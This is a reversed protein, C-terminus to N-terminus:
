EKPRILLDGEGIKPGDISYRKRKDDPHSCRGIKGTRYLTTLASYISHQTTSARLIRVQDFVESSLLPTPTARLVVLIAGSLPGTSKTPASSPAELEGPIETDESKESGCERRILGEAVLIHIIFHIEGCEGYWGADDVDDDVWVLNERLPTEFCQVQSRELGLFAAIAAVSTGIVSSAFLVRAANRSESEFIVREIMDDVCADIVALRLDLAVADAYEDVQDITLDDTV